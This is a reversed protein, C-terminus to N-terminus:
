VIILLSEAYYNIQAPFFKNVKQYTRVSDVWVGYWPGAATQITDTTFGPAPNRLLYYVRKGQVSDEQPWFEFQSLRTYRPDYSFCKLTNNYYCYRAPLQFGDNMMLWNDGVKQKVAHAWDKYYFFNKVGQVSRVFPPQFVLLLRVVVIIVINAAALRKLWIPPTNSGRFSVLVLIILAAVAIITWQPQVEGRATSLLFFVIVGIFVVKVSRLFIDTTRLTFGKYFWLWGVLPGAMLLQSLVYVSTFDLKYIKESRDSLHYSVSPYDHQIQWYIHPLYLAGAILVIIWFSGRTLQKLNAVLTFGILLVAHYKSYLLCAIIIGLLMAQWWKNEILYYRYVFLFLVTFFFLPGDPTTIFGYIHLMFMGGSVLIFWLANANYQRVIRWLLFISFTSSLINVFRLGLENHVISDGMRIFLAVMPPHDFYGWDLYRSFMWYYAEDAHLELTWAQM